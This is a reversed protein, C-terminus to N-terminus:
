ARVMQSSNCSTRRQELWGLESISDRKSGICKSSLSLEDVKVDNLESDSRMSLLLEKDWGVCYGGTGSFGGRDLITWIGEEVLGTGLEEVSGGELGLGIMLGGMAGAIAGAGTVGTTAGVIGAWLWEVAGFNL